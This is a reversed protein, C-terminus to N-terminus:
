AEFTTALYDNFGKPSGAWSATPRGQRSLIALLALWRARVEDATPKTRARSAPLKCCCHLHGLQSRIRSQAHASQNTSRMSLMAIRNRWYALGLASDARLHAVISELHLLEGELESRAM